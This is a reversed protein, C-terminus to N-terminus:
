PREVFSDLVRKRGAKEFEVTLKNGDIDVVAGYGFKIHFVREGRAFTSVLPDDRAILQGEIIMGPGGPRRRGEGEGAERSAQARRWGPTDYASAFPVGGAFRSSGARDYFGDGADVDVADAPLEDVFRSPISSQWLGHVRRNSAFTVWARAKARTLGVHALRREEELGARGSEDLARQNPFVGEEWGPLFVTDFELGKASHLTMLNVKDGDAFADADMVLAVHELFGALSDFEDMQGILEKLNELRGQAAPSRDQQWMGTYGSEDLIMEALDTHRMTRALGRWREFSAILGTLASRTRGRIEDTEAM